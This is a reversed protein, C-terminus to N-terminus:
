LTTGEQKVATVVSSTAQWRGDRWVFKDVFDAPFDQKRIRFRVVGSLTARDGKLDLKLDDFAWKEITPDPQITGLYEAKGRARNEVATDVYDDALIRNLKNKDANINATTWEHELNTLQELVLAEDTPPKSDVGDSNNQNGDISNSNSSNQNWNSSDSRNVNTNSNSTNTNAPVVPVVKLPQLYFYLVTGTAVIIFILLLLLGLIWPWVRRRAPPIGPSAYSGPAQYSPPTDQGADASPGASGDGGERASPSVVTVEDPPDEVPVLPTGDDICFSLNRDTFTRNCTPCRKV